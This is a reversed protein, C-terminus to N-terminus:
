YTLEKFAVHTTTKYKSKNATNQYVEHPDRASYADRPRPRTELLAKIDHFGQARHTSVDREHLMEVVFILHTLQGDM